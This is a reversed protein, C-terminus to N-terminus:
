PAPLLNARARVLGAVGLRKEQGRHHAAIWLDPPTKALHQDGLPLDFLALRLEIGCPTAEFRNKPFVQEGECVMGRFEIGPAAIIKVPREFERTHVDRVTRGASRDLLRM